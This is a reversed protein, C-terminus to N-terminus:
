SVLVTQPLRPSSYIHESSYKPKPFLPHYSILHFRFAEPIDTLNLYDRIWTQSQKSLLKKDKREGEREREKMRTRERTREERERVGDGEGIESFLAGLLMYEATYGRQKPKMNKNSDSWDSGGWSLIILNRALPLSVYLLLM